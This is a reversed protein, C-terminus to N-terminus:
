WGPVEPAEGELPQLAFRLTLRHRGAAREVGLEGGVQSAFAALLQGGLGTGNAAAAPAAPMAEPAASNAVALEAQGGPLARLSLDLRPLPEDPAPQAYKLANTLAETLLLALPVAQDPALRLPAFDTVVRFRRGPGSAMAVIQRTIDGLLEDARVDVQGTTQYLEKHVTALSMVREQLGRMLARTEPSTTRRMQMNMISAILQLNNKVRHHVERLLVEKQHLTDELEAEDRLIQDTMRRFARAVERIEAPAREMRLDGVLRSGGAFGRIAGALRRMYRAVLREAGVWVLVLSAAWMLGTLLFPGVLWPGGLGLGARAPASGLAYLEGPVLPAAAYVRKEGAATRGTFSAAPAGVLAALELGSPLSAAARELGRSATLIKGEGNFTLFDPAPTGADAPARNEAAIAAHPLALAVYGEAGPRGDGEVPHVVLVISTGSVPGLADVHTSPRLDAIIEEFLSLGAYDFAAGHAACRMRGDLPVYGVVSLHPAQRAIDDMMADCAAENGLRAPLASALGAAMGQAARVLGVQPATARLTEGMLLAASQERAAERWAAAQVLSIAGVPLLALALLSALRFGLRDILRARDTPAPPAAPLDAPQPAANRPQAAPGAAVAAGGEAPTM